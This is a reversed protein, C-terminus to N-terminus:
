MRVEVSVGVPSFPSLMVALVPPLLGVVTFSLTAAGTVFLVLHAAFRYAPRSFVRYLRSGGREVAELRSAIRVWMSEPCRPRPVSLLAERTLKLATLENQCAHCLDVHRTIQASLHQPLVRELYDILRKRTKRCEFM